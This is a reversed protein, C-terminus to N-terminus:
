KREDRKRGKKVKMEKRKEEMKDEEGEILLSKKMWGM